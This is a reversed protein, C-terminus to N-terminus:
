SGLMTLIFSVQGEHYSMNWAPFTLADWVPVTGFSSEIVLDFDADPMREIAAVLAALNTKFLAMLADSGEALAAAKAELYEQKDFGAYLGRRALDTSTPMLVTLEALMDIPSRSEPSAAFDRRDVPVQEYAELFRQGEDRTQAALVQRVTAM